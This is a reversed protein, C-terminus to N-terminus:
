YSGIARAPDPGAIKRYGTCGHSTIYPRGRRADIVFLHLRASKRPNKDFLLLCPSIVMNEKQKQRQRISRYHAAHILDRDGDALM